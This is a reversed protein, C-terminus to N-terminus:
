RKRLPGTSPFERSGRLEYNADGFILERAMMGVGSIQGKRVMVEIPADDGGLAQWNTIEGSFVKKLNEYSIDSVSNDKHTIIVLADWAVAHLKVGKEADELILHRCAGGMDAKGAATQRIGKTAGGGSLVITIGETQEFAKVLETMYAKKSIGCGTWKLEAHTLVPFAILVSVILYTLQKNM